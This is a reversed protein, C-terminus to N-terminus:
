QLTIIKQTYMHQPSKLDTRKTVKGNYLVTNNVKTVMNYILDRSSVWSIVPLKNGKLVKM